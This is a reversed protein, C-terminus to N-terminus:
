LNQRGQRSFEPPSWVFLGNASAFAQLKQLLGSYPDYVTMYTDDPEIDIMAQQKEFVARFFSKGSLDCLLGALKEPDPNREWSECSDFSVTIDYYCNLGLLIEAFSQRISRIRDLRLYYKEIAFYQGSANSPVQEPLIDVIYYPGELLRSALNDYQGTSFPEEIMMIEEASFKPNEYILFCLVSKKEIGSQCVFSCTIGPLAPFRNSFM